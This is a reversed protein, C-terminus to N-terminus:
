SFFLVYLLVFLFDSLLSPLDKVNAEGVRLKLLVLSKAHFRPISM